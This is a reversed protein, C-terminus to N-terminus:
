QEEKIRNGDEQRFDSEKATREDVVFSGGKALSEERVYIDMSGSRFGKLDLTM